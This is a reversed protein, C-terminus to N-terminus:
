HSTLNRSCFPYSCWHHSACLVSPEWYMGIIPMLNRWSWVDRLFIIVHFRFGAVQEKPSASVASYLCCFFDELRTVWWRTTCTWYTQHFNWLPFWIEWFVLSFRCSVVFFNLTFWGHTRADIHLYTYTHTYMCIYIYIYIYIHTTHIYIYICINGSGSYMSVHTYIYIYKYVYICLYLYTGVMGGHWGNRLVFLFMLQITVVLPM